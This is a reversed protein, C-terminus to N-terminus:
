GKAPGSVTAMPQMEKEIRESIKEPPDDDSFAARIKMSRDILYITTSHTLLITGDRRRALLRRAGFARAAALKIDLV